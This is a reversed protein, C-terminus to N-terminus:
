ALLHDTIDIYHFIQSVTDRSLIESQADPGIPQEPVHSPADDSLLHELPFPRCAQSIMTEHLESFPSLYFLEDSSNKFTDM